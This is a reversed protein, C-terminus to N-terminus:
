LSLPGSADTDHDVDREQRADSGIDKSCLLNVTTRRMVAAIVIGICIKCCTSDCQHELGFM